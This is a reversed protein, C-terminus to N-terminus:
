VYLAGPNLTKSLYRLREVLVLFSDARLLLCEGTADFLTSMNVFYITKNADTLLKRTKILIDRLSSHIAAHNAVSSSQACLLCLATYFYKHRHTRWRCWFSLSLVAIFAFTFTNTRLTRWTHAHPDPHTHTCTPRLWRSYVHSLSRTYTHQTHTYKPTHTRERVDFDMLSDLHDGGIEIFQILVYRSKAPIKVQVSQEECFFQFNEATVLLTLRGIDTDLFPLEDM